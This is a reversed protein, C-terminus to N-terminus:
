LKSTVLCPFKFLKIFGNRDGTALLVDNKLQDITSVSDRFSNVEHAGSVLTGTPCTYTEWEIREGAEKVKEKDLAFAYYQMSSTNIQIYESTKSFDLYRISGPAKYKQILKFNKVADYLYLRSNSASAILLNGDPSFKLVLICASTDKRTATVKFESDFIQIEGNLLGVAVLKGDVSFVIASGGCNLRRVLRQKRTIIDWVGLMCNNDLTVYEAKRPNVDLGWLENQYHSRVLVKPNNKTIEVIDGSRTGILINGDSKECISRIKPNMSNISKDTAINIVRIKELSQDWVYVIGDNGGTIIGAANPRGWIANVAGKHARIYHSLSRGKWVLLKGEFSGTILATGLYAACLLAQKDIRQKGQEADQYEGKQVTIAGGSFSIFNLENVAPAIVQDGSPNFLLSLISASTLQGTGILGESSSKKSKNAVNRSTTTCKEWDYIVICHYEDKASAALYNGDPSFCIHSIGQNLLGTIRALCEMTITDWICIKPTPSVDGTAAYIMNPHMALCVIETLHEFFHKQTNLGQNLVIGVSAAHYVIDGEKNYRLNNRTDIIRYGHIYELELNADPSELSDAKNIVEKETLVKNSVLSVEESKKTRIAQKAIM